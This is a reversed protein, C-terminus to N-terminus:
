QRRRRINVLHDHMDGGPPLNGITRITIRPPNTLRVLIGAVDIAYKRGPEDNDPYIDVLRGALPSWDAHKASSASGSTVAFLGLKWAADVAKEGECVSVPEHRPVEDIRYLCHPSPPAKQIWGGGEPRTIELFTKDSELEIRARYWDDSWRYIAAVKGHRYQAYNEAAVKPSAFIMPPANRKEPSRCQEGFGSVVQKAESFTCKHHRRVIDFVDGGWDCPFCHFHWHGVDLYKISASPNNDEHFPCKCKGNESVEGGADVIAAVIAGRSRRIDHTDIM